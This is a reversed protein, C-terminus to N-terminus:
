SESELKNIRRIHREDGSFETEIFIKVAEIAQENTMFRAGLSLINANNHKRLSSVMDLNNGKIDTQTNEGGYYVGARIGKIKNACMSEAQGSAGIIIGLNKSVEQGENQELDEAIARVCPIVFDPYDDDTNLEKAGYDIVEYDLIELEKKLFEKMEYGAHDAGIHITM